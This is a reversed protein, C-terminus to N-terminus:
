EEKGKIAGIRKMTSNKGLDLQEGFYFLSSICGVLNRGIEIRDPNELKDVFDFIKLQREAVIKTSLNQDTQISCILFKNQITLQISNWKNQYNERPIYLVESLSQGDATSYANFNITINSSILVTIEWEKALNLLRTFFNNNFLYM